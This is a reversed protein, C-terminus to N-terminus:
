YFSKLCGLVVLSVLTKRWWCHRKSRKKEEKWVLWTSDACRTWWPTVQPCPKQLFLSTFCCCIWCCLFFHHLLLLLLMRRVGRHEVETSVLFELILDILVRRGGSMSALFSMLTTGEWSCGVGSHLFVRWFSGGTICQLIFWLSEKGIICCFCM